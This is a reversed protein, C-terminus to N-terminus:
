FPQQCLLASVLKIVVNHVLKQRPHFKDLELLAIVYKVLTFVIWANLYQFLPNKGPCMQDVAGLM